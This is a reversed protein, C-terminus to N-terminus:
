ATVTSPWEAGGDTDQESRVVGERIPKPIVM